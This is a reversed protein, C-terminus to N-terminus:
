HLITAILELNKDVISVELIVYRVAFELGITHRRHKNLNKALM